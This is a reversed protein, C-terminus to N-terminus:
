GGTGPARVAPSRNPSSDRAFLAPAVIWALLVAYRLARHAPSGLLMFWAHGSMATATIEAVVTFLLWAVGVLLAHDVTIQRATLRVYAFAILVIAGIEALDSGAPSIPDITRHVWAGSVAAIIWFLVAFLATTVLHHKRPAIRPDAEAM